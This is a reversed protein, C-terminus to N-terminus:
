SCLIDKWKNTYHKIKNTYHKIKKRWHSLTKRNCDKMEETLNIELYKIRKTCSYISFHTTSAKWFSRLLNGKEEIKQFVKLLVATLKENFIQYFKGTISDPGMSKNTPLEKIILEIENSTIKKKEFKRNRGSKTKFSIM